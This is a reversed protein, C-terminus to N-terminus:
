EAKQSARGDIWEYFAESERWFKKGLGYATSSVESRPLVADRRQPVSIRPVFASSDVQSVRKGSKKESREVFRRSERIGRRLKTEAGKGLMLGSSSAGFKASEYSDAGTMGLCEKAIYDIGNLSRNFVRVRAMGGRLKEWEAMLAFCTGITVAKEPLGGLLYHFHRRSNLEGEEQRLCWLLSPFHLRFNGAVKRVYAFWMSLRVREPIEAARFTLTGFFQWDIRALHYLEPKEM